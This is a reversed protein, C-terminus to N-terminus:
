LGMLRRAIQDIGALQSAAAQRALERAKAVGRGALDLAGVLKHAEESLEALRLHDANDPDFVPIACIEFPRRTIDREGFLGRPQYEKIANNVCPANLLSSLYHAEKLSGIDTSYTTMETVFGQTPYHYTTPLHKSIDVVAAAINTGSKNYVVKYTKRARQSLLTHQYDLREFLEGFSSTDKKLKDWKEDAPGFWSDWTQKLGIGFIDAKTM